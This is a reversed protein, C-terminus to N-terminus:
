RQVPQTEALNWHIIYPRANDPIREFAQTLPLDDVMCILSALALGHSVVLLPGSPNQLVIDDVASRLRTAVQHQSEGGPPQFYRPDRQRDAWAKAYQSRIDATLMGEWAGQNVERLRPEVQVELGLREAITKATMHARQLDSSYIGAFVKGALEDALLEAQLRGRANLPPDAQGQYRGELNWDTEGHRVLWLDMRAANQREAPPEPITIM